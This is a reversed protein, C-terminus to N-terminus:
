WWSRSKLSGQCSNLQMAYLQSKAKVKRAVSILWPKKLYTKRQYGGIGEHYALYLSYPDTRPIGAKINAQNAYWGIFDVGDGFDDRSSWFWGNSRKYNDWTSRLAQTYGYATSPRTWPIIWLLKTRPPRARANFKSEQHIIAMQVPVPVKWRREVDKSDVYWKPYQKFINCINNIDAPPKSVCGTLFISFCLLTFRIKM